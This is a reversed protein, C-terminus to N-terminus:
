THLFHIGPAWESSLHACSGRVLAVHGSCRTKGQWWLKPTNMSMEILSGCFLIVTKHCGSVKLLVPQLKSKQLFEM